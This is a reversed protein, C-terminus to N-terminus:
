QYETGAQVPLTIVGRASAETNFTGLSVPAQGQKIGWLQYTRGAAAPPLDFAALVVTGRARNYYVRASPPRGQAALTTTRVDPSLLTAILSDSRAIQNQAAALQARASDADAAAVMRASRESRYFVSIGAAVLLMAATALWPLRSARPKQPPPAMRASIPRVKRAEELVRTKLHPPAALPTASHALLGTVEQFSQVEARCAPCDALHAEFAIRDPEDLADLAYSAAYETWPHENSM